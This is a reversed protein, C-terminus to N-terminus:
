PAKAEVSDAAAILAAALQRAQEPNVVFRVTVIRDLDQQWHDEVAVSRHDRSYKVSLYRGESDIVRQIRKAAETVEKDSLGGM